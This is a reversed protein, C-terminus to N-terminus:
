RGPLTYHFWYFNLESSFWAVNWWIPNVPQKLHRVSLISQSWMQPLNFSNYICQLFLAKFHSTQCLINNIVSTNNQICYCGPVGSNGPLPDLWHGATRTPCLSGSSRCVWVRLHSWPAAPSHQPPPLFLLASDARQHSGSHLRLFLELPRGWRVWLYWKFSIFVNFEFPPPPGCHHAEWDAIAVACHPNIHAM